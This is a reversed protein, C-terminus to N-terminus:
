VYPASIFCQGRYPPRRSQQGPAKSATVYYAACKAGSICFPFYNAGVCFQVFSGLLGYSISSQSVKSQIKFINPMNWDTQAFLTASTPMYYLSCPVSINTIDGAKKCGKLGTDHQHTSYYATRACERWILSEQQEALAASSQIRFKKGAFSPKSSFLILQWGAKCKCTWLHPIM